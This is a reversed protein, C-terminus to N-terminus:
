RIWAPLHNSRWIRINGILRKGTLKNQSNHLTMDIVSSELGHFNKVGEGLL